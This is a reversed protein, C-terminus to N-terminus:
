SSRSASSLPRLTAVWFLDPHFGVFFAVPQGIRSGKLFNRFLLNRVVGLLGARHQHALARLSLGDCHANVLDLVFGDNDIEVM